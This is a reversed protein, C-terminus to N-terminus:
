RKRALRQLLDDDDADEDDEDAYNKIIMQMKMMM